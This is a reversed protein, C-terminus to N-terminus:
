STRSDRGRRVASSCARHFHMRPTWLQLGSDPTFSLITVCSRFQQPQGEYM